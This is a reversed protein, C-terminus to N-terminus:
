DREDLVVIDVPADQALLDLTTKLIRRQQEPNNPEGLTQGRDTRVIVGRPPLSARVYGGNWSATASAIGEM